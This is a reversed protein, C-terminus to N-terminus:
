SESSRYIDLLSIGYKRKKEECLGPPLEITEKHHRQLVALGGPRLIRYRILRSLIRSGLSLPYPYGAFVIDYEREPIFDLADMNYVVGSASLALGSLNEKIMAALGPDKEVFDASSAGRSLADIGVSGTGSFMDLFKAGEICGSLISFLAERITSSAPRIKKGPPANLLRGKYIGGSVKLTRRKEKVM